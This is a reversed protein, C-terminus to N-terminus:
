APERNTATWIWAGASFTVAGEKAHEALAARLSAQMAERREPAAEAIARAAPGIRSFFSLADAVPDSGGGAVYAFDVSHAAAHRWGARTLVDRTFDANALAFPGPAYNAPPSYANGVAAEAVVAWQNVAHSRFCSFALRAGPAASDRLAAFGAVPDEFFMVGHRSFLLDAGAPGLGQADAVRFTLNALGAARERAVAILAPSIDIGTISLGPRRAALALSTGGAGCGIDIAVGTDPAAALIAADLRLSLDALSRDTRRWEDAWADGSRGTWDFTTTM